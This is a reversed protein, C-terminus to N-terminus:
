QSLKGFNSESIRKRFNQINAGVEHQIQSIFSTSIFEATPVLINLALPMMEIDLHNDIAVPEGDAHAKLKDNSFVEIHKGLIIEDFKSQDLTKDFMSILLAPATVKPFERIICVDILGDDIKANPSIHFNNGYQSSNAFSILFANRQYEVGDIKLIYDLAKYKSFEKTILKIYGLPGRSKKGAFLHSIQGDFGVGSVNFSYHNNIKMVDIKKVESNQLAQLARNVKLPINLFRALGNGSGAPIIAMATDSGVLGSGVENVTGDGGVAVVIDFSGIAQRSLDVAHGAKQTVAVEWDWVAPDLEKQILSNITNQKGLGSFPNVIFLIKKVM